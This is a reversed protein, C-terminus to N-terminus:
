TVGLFVGFYASNLLSLFHESTASITWKEVILIWPTRTFDFFSGLYDFFNFFHKKKIWFDIFFGCIRRLFNYKKRDMLLKQYKVLSVRRNLHEFLTLQCGWVLHKRLYIRKSFFVVSKKFNKTDMYPEYFFM